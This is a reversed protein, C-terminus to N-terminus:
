CNLGHFKTFWVHDIAQRASIRKDQEQTLMLKMLDKAEESLTENGVFKINGKRIKNVINRMTRDSFPPKGFLLFYCICGASWVDVKFYDYNSGNIMEPAIYDITGALAFSMQTSKVDKGFGFDVIKITRKTQNSFMINDPKLDRHCIKRSHMYALAGLLQYMIKAAQAENYVGNAVVDDKLTGGECLELQLYLKEPEDFSNYAKCINKHDLKQMRSFELMVQEQVAPELTAKDVVKMCFYEKTKKHQVLYANGTTGTGIEKIFNFIHKGTGQITESEKPLLKFDIYLQQLIQDRESILKQKGDSSKSVWDANILKTLLFDKTMEDMKFYAPHHIPPGFQEIRKKQCITLKLSDEQEIMEFVFIVNYNWESFLSLDLSKAELFVLLVSSKNSHDLTQNESLTNVHFLIDIDGKFQTYIATKKNEEDQFTSYKGWGTLTTQEGLFKLFKAFNSSHDLIKNSFIQRLTFQRDKIYLCNFDYERLQLKKESQEILHAFEEGNATQQYEIKTLNKITELLHNTKAVKPIQLYKDGMETRILLKGEEANLSILVIGQEPDQGILYKSDKSKFYDQFFIGIGLELKLNNKTQEFSIEPDGKDINWDEHTLIESSNSSTKQYKQLEKLIETNGYKAAITSATENEDNKISTDAGHGLLYVVADKNGKLTAHHLPTENNTDRCNVNAKKDTVLTDILNLYDMSNDSPLFRVLYHLPTAGDRNIVNVRAGYKLLAEIAQIHGYKCAIHLSTRNHDDPTNIDLTASNEMICDILKASNLEAAVHFLSTSNAFKSNLPLGKKILEIIVDANKSSIAKDADKLESDQFKEGTQGAYKNVGFFRFAKGYYEEGPYLTGTWASFSSSKSLPMSGTSTTSECKISLKSLADNGEFYLEKFFRQVKSNKPINYPIKQFRSFHALRSSIKKLQDYNLQQNKGILNGQNLINSIQELLILFCPIFSTNKKEVLKVIERYNHYNNEPDMVKKIKDWFNLIEQSLGKWTKNLRSVFRSNLAKYIKMVGNFNNLRLLAFGIDIFKSLIATRQKIGSESLITTIIWQITLNFNDRINVLRPSPDSPDFNILDTTTLSKYLEFDILTMQCALYVFSVKDFCQDTNLRKIKKDEKENNLVKNITPSIPIKRELNPVEWLKSLYKGLFKETVIDSQSLSAEFNSYLILMNIDKIFDDIGVEIWEKIVQFIREKKPHIKFENNSVPIRFYELTLFLLLEFPKIVTQFTQLFSSIFSPDKEPDILQNLIETLYVPGDKELRPLKNLSKNNSTKTSQEPTNRPPEQIIKKKENRNQNEWLDIASVGRCSLKLIEINKDESKSHIESLGINSDSTKGLLQDLAPTSQSNSLKKTELKEGHNQERVSSRPM